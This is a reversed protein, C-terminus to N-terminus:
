GNRVVKFINSNDVVVSSEVLTTKVLIRHYREPQLGDMYADSFSGNYDCRIKPFDTDFDVVM